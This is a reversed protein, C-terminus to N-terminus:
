EQRIPVRVTAQGSLVWDTSEVLQQLDAAGTTNAVSSDELVGVASPPLNKLLKGRYQMGAGTTPMLAVLDTNRHGKQIVDLYDDLSDPSAADTPAADGSLVTVTLTRMSDTEAPVRIAITKTVEPGGFPKLVVSLPVTEGREVESKGFYARKIEATQRSLSADVKVELRKIAPSGFPTNVMAVLPMLGDLSILGGGPNFFTDTVAVTRAAGGTKTPGLDASVSVRVTTDQTSGSAASVTQAVGAILLQATFAQNDMIEVDYHETQGTDRNAADITLPIMRAQTKTDAVICSQWDGVMAGIEAVPTALKFSREVSSMITHVEALVAPAQVSGGEFFPHGFALVRNKDVYTATGVATMNLDGRMLQVGISGGPEIDGSRRPLAARGAGGAVVPMMGFGAFRSAFQGIVGPSFGGFSLPTVLPRPADVDAASRSFAENPLAFMSPARGLSVSAMATAPPVFPRTLQELMNHIPTVGALPENEFTWGYALAGILKDNIYIPSGSMGAIVKHKELDAGSLRILIMDQKPMVNKLVGVIEVEFREPRTGKFVSLGYGKMGPQVQEPRLTDIARASQLFVFAGVLLLSFTRIM